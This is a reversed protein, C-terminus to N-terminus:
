SLGTANFTEKYNGAEYEEDSIEKVLQGLANYLGLTYKGTKPIAFEITTTPNFPNPYNQYLNIDKPLQDNVEEVGVPDAVITIGFTASASANATDKAIVTVMMPFVKAQTPIGSFTGTGSNFNLWSPWPGGNSLKATFTLTSNADDDFFTSDPFAFNFSHGVTDIQNKIPNKLYPTFNTHKLSDILGDIRVWHVYTDSYDAKTGTSYFLYKNDSSVYPGWMSLGFNIKSGLSKPNTWSGDNKRYSIHLGGKALIIFTEDKSIFFDLNDGGSNLPQGLSVATTDTGNIFLNCWDNAGVTPASISSIYYNGNNIVQLYHASNLNSLIRQPNSWNLGNKVSIFTEYVASNNLINANQFYMTDGSISLAPALYGPFLNFPGSWKSSSYSYYKITDGAAPYYSRVESFYIEKNDKSIAIREAAFSGTNVPLNFIQPTDGPPTQGLYMSDPPIAQAYLSISSVVMMSIVLLLRMIKKM